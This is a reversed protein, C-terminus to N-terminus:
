QWPPVPSLSHSWPCKCKIWPCLSSLVKFPEKVDSEKSKLNHIIKYSHHFILSKLIDLIDLGRICKYAKGIIEKSPFTAYVKLGFPNYTHTQFLVDRQLLFSFPKLHWISHPGLNVFLCYEGDRFQLCFKSLWIRYSFKSGM